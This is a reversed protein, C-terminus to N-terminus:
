VVYRPAVRKLEEFVIFISASIFFFIPMCICLWVVANVWFNTRPHKIYPFFNISFTNQYSTCYAFLALFSAYAIGKLLISDSQQALFNIASVVLLNRILELWWKALRRVHKATSM